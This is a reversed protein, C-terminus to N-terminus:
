GVGADVYSGINAQAYCHYGGGVIAAVGQAGGRHRDVRRRIWLAHQSRHGHIYTAGGLLYIHDTGETVGAVGQGVRGDGIVVRFGRCRHRSRCDGDSRDYLACRGDGHGRGVPWLWVAVWVMATVTPGARGTALRPAGTALAMVSPSVAPVVRVTISSAAAGEVPSLTNISM